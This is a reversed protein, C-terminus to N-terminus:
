RRGRVMSLKASPKLSVQAKFQKVGTVGFDLDFETIIPWHSLKGRVCLGVKFCRDVSVSASVETNPLRPSLSGPPGPAAGGPGPEIWTVGSPLEYSTVDSARLPTSGSTLSGSAVADELTAQVTRIYGTGGPLKQIDRIRRLFYTTFPRDDDIISSVIVDDIRLDSIDASDRMVLLGSDIDFDEIEDVRDADFVVVDGKLQLSVTSLFYVSVLRDRNAVITCTDSSTSDCGTWRDIAYGSMPLAELVVNTGEPVVAHCLHPVDCELNHQGALQASGEGFISVTLEVVSTRLVTVSVSDTATAGDDDEVQLEFVLATGAAEATQFTARASDAGSINVPTGSVQSWAYSVITGDSDTSASGDLTVTIGETVTQDIGAIADPAIVDIVMVSVSDTATAGDDDEVQLQFVMVTDATVQPTQFTARASDAGSINVPTGSVQSWAYSVITGDSDTSASGDLTVTIGETVTQDIGAAASPTSNTPGEEEGGGGCGSVVLAFILAWALRRTIHFPQM